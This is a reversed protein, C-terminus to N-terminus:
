WIFNRLRTISNRAFLDIKILLANTCIYYNWTPSKLKEFIITDNVFFKYGVTIPEDLPHSFVVRVALKALVFWRLLFSIFLFRRQLIQVWLSKIECRYLLIARSCPLQCRNARFILVRLTYRQQHNISSSIIFCLM